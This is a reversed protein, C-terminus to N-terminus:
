KSVVPTQFFEVSFWSILADIHFTNKFNLTSYLDSICEKNVQVQDTLLKIM